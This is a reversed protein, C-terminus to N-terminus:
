SILEQNQDITTPDGNEATNTEMALDSPPLTGSGSLDTITADHALNYLAGPQKTNAEASGLPTQQLQKLPGM